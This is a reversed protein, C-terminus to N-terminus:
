SPRVESFFLTFATAGASLRHQPLAGPGCSGSGLGQHAHDLTLFVQDRPRLEATHRAADLDEASWPRATFDFFPEGEVRLGAGSADLFTAWRVDSRNGNEQPMVYPTQLQAVPAAFRGVHVAQRSDRYSEGPGLGFWAAQDFEAPLAM